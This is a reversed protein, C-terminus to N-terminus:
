AGDRLAMIRTLIHGAPTNAGRGVGGRAELVCAAAAGILVAGLAVAGLHRPWDRAPAADWMRSELAMLQQQLRARLAADRSGAAECEEEDDEDVDDADGGQGHRAAVAFANVEVPQQQQQQQHQPQV